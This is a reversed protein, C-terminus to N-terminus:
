AAGAMEGIEAFSLVQAIDLLIVVKGKLKAMGEIYDTNRQVGLDPASEIEGEVINTVESVSDVIIGDLNAVPM